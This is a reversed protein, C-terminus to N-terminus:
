GGDGPWCRLIPLAGLDVRDVEVEQCPASRVRKPALSRLTELTEITGGLDRIAGVIGAPPRLRVLRGIRDAVEALTEAGLALAIRRPSGLVNMAVPMSAGTVNEFLLAPGDARVARQTIETIELDRSVPTPVRRLDGREELAALFDGLSRFAM